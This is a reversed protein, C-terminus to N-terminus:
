MFCSFTRRFFFFLVVGGWVCSVFFLLFKKYVVDSVNEKSKEGGM